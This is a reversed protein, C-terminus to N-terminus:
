GKLAKFLEPFQTSLDDLSINKALEDGEQTTVNYRIEGSSASALELRKNELHVLVIADKTMKPVDTLEMKYSGSCGGAGGALALGVSFFFVGISVLFRKKM